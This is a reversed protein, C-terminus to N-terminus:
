RELTIRSFKKDTGYGVCKIRSEAGLAGGTTLGDGYLKGDKISLAAIATDFANGVTMSGYLSSYARVNSGKVILKEYSRGTEKVGNAAIFVTDDKLVGEEGAMGTSVDTVKCYRKEVPSAGLLFASFGEGPRYTCDDFSMPRLVEEDCAGSLVSAYGRVPCYEEGAGAIVYDLTRNRIWGSATRLVAGFTDDFCTLTLSPGETKMLISVQSALANHVSNAFFTPSACKDGFKIIDDLFAFTTSLPGYGSGFVIGVRSRDKITVGSDELASFSALLAMKSFRDIRRLARKPLFRDLGNVEASYVKLSSDEGLKELKEESIKPTVRGNLAERITEIGCGLASVTGIGCISVDRSM